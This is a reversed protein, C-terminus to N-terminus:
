PTLLKRYMQLVFARASETTKTEGTALLEVQTGFDAYHQTTAWMSFILHGPDMKAIKGNEMWDGLISANRDFQPRVDNVLQKKLRPAGQIVENAFLKSERPHQETFDMKLSIYKLIEEMPDGNPDIDVFLELWASNVQDIVAQYIADKGDFYYLINPKSLGALDSIDDLTTGRFGYKAFLELAADLIIARNRLQIRSLKKPQDDDQAM